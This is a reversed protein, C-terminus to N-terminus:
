RVGEAAVREAPFYLKALYTHAAFLGVSFVNVLLWVPWNGLFVVNCKSFAAAPYKFLFEFM